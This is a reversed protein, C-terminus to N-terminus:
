RRRGLVAAAALVLTVLSLVVLRPAASTDDDPSRTTLELFLLSGFVTLCVYLALRSGRRVLEGAAVTVVGAVLLGGQASANLNIVDTSMSVVALVANLAGLVLLM